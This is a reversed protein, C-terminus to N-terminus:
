PHRFRELWRDLRTFLCQRDRQASFLHDAEVLYEVAVAGPGAPLAGFMEAFQRQHNFYHHALTGTYIFYLQAGREVLQRLDDRVQRRPPFAIALPEEPAPPPGVGRLRRLLRAAFRGWASPRLLRAGYHRLYYGATRYGYGDLFVAGAIRPDRVAAEHAFFAGSCLGLVVFRSVGKRTQLANLTDALDLLARDVETGGGDRPLSEGVGSVDLRLCGFGQRALRRALPVYWGSPGVHHILGANLLIIAPQGAVPQEPTTWVGLLGDSPGFRMVEESM